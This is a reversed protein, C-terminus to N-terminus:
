ADINARFGDLDDADFFARPTNRDRSTKLLLVVLIRM